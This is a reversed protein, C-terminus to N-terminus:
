DRRKEQAAIGQQVAQFVQDVSIALMCEENTPCVRRYCPACPVQGILAQGNGYFEIERATTSGFLTVCYSGTAIGIHMALTDGAVLVQLRSVLAAFQRLSFRCGPFIGPARMGAQLLEYRHQEREGGLFVPTIGADRLRRALEVFREIPWQKGAFAEGAGVNLGVFPGKGWGKCTQDAWRREAESLPMFYPNPGWDLECAEAILQPYTRTNRHFKEDDDLGLQFLYETSASLPILLGHHNRGFGFKRHSTAQTALSTPGEEKDLSIVADWDLNRAWLTSDLDWPLVKWLGAEALLPMAAPKTIWAISCGPFHKRLAPILTTTRLVDGLAGLKIVLIRHGLSQYESCPEHDDLLPGCAKGASKPCPKDGRFHRCDFDHFVSRAPRFAETM